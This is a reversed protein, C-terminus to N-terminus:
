SRDDNFAEITRRRVQLVIAGGSLAGDDIECEVVGHFGDWESHHVSRCGGSCGAARTM